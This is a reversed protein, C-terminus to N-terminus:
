KGFNEDTGLVITESFLGTLQDKLMERTGDTSGDDVLLLQIEDPKLYGLNIADEFESRALHM